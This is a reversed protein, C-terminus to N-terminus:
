YNCTQMLSYNKLLINTTCSINELDWDSSNGKLKSNSDTIKNIINSKSNLLAVPNKEWEIIIEGM